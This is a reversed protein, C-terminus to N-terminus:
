TTRRDGERPGVRTLVEYGMGQEDADYRHIWAHADLASAGGSVGVLVDHRRGQALLWRQVVLSRELCTARALRLALEVGRVSASASAPAPAVRVELGDSAIERRLRHLALVAWGAARLTPLGGRPLRRAAHLAHGRRRRRPV